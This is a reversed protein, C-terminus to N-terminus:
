SRKTNSTQLCLSSKCIGSLWSAWFIVPKERPVNKEGPTLMKTQTHMHMYSWLMHPAKKGRDCFCKKGSIQPVEISVNRCLTCYCEWTLCQVNKIWDMIEHDIENGLCQQSGASIQCSISELLFIIQYTNAFVRWHERIMKLYASALPSRSLIETTVVARGHSHCTVAWFSRPLQSRPALSEYFLDPLHRLLVTVFWGAGGMGPLIHDSLRRSTAMDILLWSLQRSAPKWWIMLVSLQKSAPRVLIKLHGSLQGSTPRIQIMLLGSLQGSASRLTM